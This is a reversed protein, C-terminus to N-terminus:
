WTDKSLKHVQLHKLLALVCTEEIKLHSFISIVFCKNSRTRQSVLKLGIPLLTGAFLPRAVYSLDAHVDRLKMVSTFSALKM